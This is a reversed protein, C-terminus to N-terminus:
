RVGRNLGGEREHGETQFEFTGQLLPQIQIKRALRKGDVYRRPDVVVFGWFQLFNQIFRCEIMGELQQSPSFYEDTSLQNLLDPFATKVEQILRDVQGHKTIRWIMYLWFPRLDVQENYGDFYAWNFRKVAAELMPLYFARLGQVQFLKQADKKIHFHGARRYIIGSAMKVLSTPLNGKTTTKISGGNKQAEDFLLSLYRMVPSTSLDNPTGIKVLSLDPFAANLWNHMQVPSLGCFDPQPRNNRGDVKHQIFLNIEDIGLGPNMAMIRKIEEMLESTDTTEKSNKFKM